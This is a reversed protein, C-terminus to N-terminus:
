KKKLPLVICLTIIGQILGIIVGQVTFVILIFLIFSFSNGTGVGGANTTSVVLPSLVVLGGAIGLFGGL